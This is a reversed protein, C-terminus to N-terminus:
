ENVIEQLYREVKQHELVEPLKKANIIMKELIEPSEKVSNIANELPKKLNEPVKYRFAADIVVIKAEDKKDDKRGEDDKKQLRNSYKNIMIFNYNLLYIDNFNKSVDILSLFSIIEESTLEEIQKRKNLIEFSYLRTAYENTISKFQNSPFTLEKLNKIERFDSFRHICEELIKNIDSTEENISAVDFLFEKGVSTKIKQLLDARIENTNGNCKNAIIMMPIKYTAHKSYDCLVENIGILGDSDNIDYVLIAGDIYSYYNKNPRLNWGTELFEVKITYNNLHIYTTTVYVHLTDKYVGNDFDDKAFKSVLSSKGVCDKGDVGIRLFFDYNENMEPFYGTLQDRLYTHRMSCKYHTSKQHTVFLSLISANYSM